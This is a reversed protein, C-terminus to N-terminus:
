VTYRKQVIQAIKQLIEQYRTDRSWSVLICLPIAHVRFSETKTYLIVSSSDSITRQQFTAFFVAGSCHFQISLWSFKVSAAFILSLPTPPPPPPYLSGSMSVPLLLIICYKFFLLSNYSTVTSYVTSYTCHLYGLNNTPIVFWMVTHLSETPM